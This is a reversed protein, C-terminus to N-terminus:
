SGIQLPCVYHAVMATLFLSNYSYTVAQTHVVKPTTRLVHNIMATGQYKWCLDTLSCKVFPHTKTTKQFGERIIHYFWYIVVMIVRLILTQPKPSFRLSYIVKWFHQLVSASSSVLINYLFCYNFIRPGFNNPITM